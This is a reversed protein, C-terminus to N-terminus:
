AQQSGRSVSGAASQRLTIRGIGVEGVPEVVSETLSVLDEPASKYLAVMFDNIADADSQPMAGALAPTDRRMNLHNSAAALSAELAEPEFFTLEDM